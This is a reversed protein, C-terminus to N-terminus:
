GAGPGRSASEAERWCHRLRRLQTSAGGIKAVPSKLSKHGIEFCSGHRWLDYSAQPLLAWQMRLCVFSRDVWSNLSGLCSRFCLRLFLSGTGQQFGFHVKDRTFGAGAGGGPITIRARVSVTAQSPNRCGPWSSFMRSLFLSPLFGRVM